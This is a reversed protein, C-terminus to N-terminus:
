IGPVNWSSVPNVSLFICIRNCELLANKILPEMEIVYLRCFDLFSLSVRFIAWKPQLIFSDLRDKQDHRDSAAFYVVTSTTSRGPKIIAGRPAVTVVLQQRSIAVSAPLRMTSEGPSSRHISPHSFVNLLDM